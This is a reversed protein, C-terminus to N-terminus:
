EQEVGDEAWAGPEESDQMKGGLERHEEGQRAAHSSGGGQEAEGWGRTLAAGGSGRGAEGAGAEDGGGRDEAEPGWQGCGGETAADRLDAPAM